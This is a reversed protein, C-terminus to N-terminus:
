LDLSIKVLIKINCMFYDGTVHCECLIRGLLFVAPPCMKLSIPSKSAM